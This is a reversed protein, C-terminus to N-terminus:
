EEEGSHQGNKTVETEALLVEYKRDLEEQADRKINRLLERFSTDLDYEMYDALRPAEQMEHNMKELYKSREDNPLTCSFEWVSYSGAWALRSVADLYQEFVALFHTAEPRRLLCDLTPSLSRVEEEFPPSSLDKWIQVQKLAEESLGTFQAVAQLSEDRTKTDTRGLLYDVSVGLYDALKVLNELSPRSRGAKMSAVAQFSVGIADAVAATSNGILATLRRALITKESEYVPLGSAPNSPRAM